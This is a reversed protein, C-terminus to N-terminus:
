KQFNKECVVAGRSRRKRRYAVVGGILDDDKPQPEATSRGQGLRGRIRLGVPIDTSSRRDLICMIKNKKSRSRMRVRRPTLADSYRSFALWFCSQVFEFGNRPRDSLSDCLSCELSACRSPCTVIQPGEPRSVFLLYCIVFIGHGSKTSELPAGPEINRPAIWCNIGASELHACIADATVRDKSSHSIFVMSPM